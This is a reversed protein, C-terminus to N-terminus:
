RAFILQPRARHAYWEDKLWKNLTQENFIFSLFVNM